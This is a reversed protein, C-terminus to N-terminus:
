KICFVPENSFVRISALNFAPPSPSSLPHSPQIVDGVRHVHTQTFELLQHHVPLDPTSCDMLDCLTQCSQTVSSFQNNLFINKLTGFLLLCQTGKGTTKKVLSVYGLDGDKCTKGKKEWHNRASKQSKLDKLDKSHKPSLSPLLIPSLKRGRRTLGGSYSSIVLIIKCDFYCYM